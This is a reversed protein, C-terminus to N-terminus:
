KLPNITDAASTVLSTSTNVPTTATINSLEAIKIYQNNFLQANQLLGFMVRRITITNDCMVAGDWNAATTPAPCAAQNYAAIHPFGHVITASTRSTGDFKQSLSGDLDYIVDRKLIGIFFLMKGDVNTFTLQNM